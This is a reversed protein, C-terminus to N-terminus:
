RGLEEYRVKALVPYMMLLLSLAIPLSVRGIRLADLADDFGPIAAGLGMAIGIWLPLFRALTSLRRVM